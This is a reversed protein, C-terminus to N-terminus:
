QINMLEIKKLLKEYEDRYFIVTKNFLNPKMKFGCMEVTNAFTHTTSPQWYATYQYASYSLKFGLIKEIEDFSLEFEDEIKTSLYREM